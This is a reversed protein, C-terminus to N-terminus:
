EEENHCLSTGNCKICTRIAFRGDPLFDSVAHNNKTDEDPVPGWFEPMAGWSKVVLGPAYHHWAFQVGDTCSMCAGHKELEDPENIQAPLALSLQAMRKGLSGAWENHPTGGESQHSRAVGLARYFDDLLDDFRTLVIGEGLPAESDGSASEDILSRLLACIASSLNTYVNM